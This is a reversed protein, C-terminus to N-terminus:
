LSCARCVAKRQRHVIKRGKIFEKALERLSAPWTDRGPSRYTHGIVDEDNCADEYIEPHEAWLAKWEGLSQLPCRACDTRKPISIGRHKLYTIVNDLGWGWERLPYRTAFEDEDFCSEYGSRGEEDARLGIYSVAPLQSSIWHEYPTIKLMRTCFRARWNPLMQMKQILTKLTYGPDVRVIEQGFITELKRWHDLMEPLEDGTPTCVLTYDRPEIEFLRLAMATSDKGGSLGIIHKM